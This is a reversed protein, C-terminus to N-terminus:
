SVGPTTIEVSDNISSNKALHFDVAIRYQNSGPTETISVKDVALFPMWRKVQTEVDEQVMAQLDALDYDMQEFLMRRFNIGLQPHFLREGPETNFLNLLNDKINEMTDDHLINDEKGFSFPLRFGIYQTNYDDQLLTDQSIVFAM